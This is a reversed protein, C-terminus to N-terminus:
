VECKRLKNRNAIKLFERVIRGLETNSIKGSVAKEYKADRLVFRGGKNITARIFLSGTKSDEYIKIMKSKAM